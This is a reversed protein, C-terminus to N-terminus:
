RFNIKIQYESNYKAFLLLSTQFKQPLKSWCDKNPSEFSRGKLNSKQCNWEFTVTKDCKICTNPEVCSFFATEVLGFTEELQFEFLVHVNRFQVHVYTSNSFLLYM